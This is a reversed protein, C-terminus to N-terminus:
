TRRLVRYIGDPSGIDGSGRTVVYGDKTLAIIMFFVPESCNTCIKCTTLVPVPVRQDPLPELPPPASYPSTALKNTHPGEAVVGKEMVAQLSDGRGPGTLMQTDSELLSAYSMTLTIVLESSGGLSQVRNQFKCTLVSRQM